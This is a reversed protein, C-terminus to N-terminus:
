LPMSSVDCGAPNRERDTRIKLFASQPDYFGINGHNTNLLIDRRGKSPALAPMQHIVKNIEAVTEEVADKLTVRKNQWDIEPKGDAGQIAHPVALKGVLELNLGLSQPDVQLPKAPDQLIGKQAHFQELARYEKIEDLRKQRAGQAEKEAIAVGQKKSENLIADIQEENAACGVLGQRYPYSVGLIGKHASEMEEVDILGLRVPGPGQLIPLNRWCNDSVGTKATFIAAQRLAPTLEQAKDYYLKEQAWQNPNFELSEEAIMDYGAVSVKKAHPLILLGLQHALSVAKANM